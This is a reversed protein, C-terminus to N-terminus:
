SNQTLRHVVEDDVILEVVARDNPCLNELPVTIGDGDIEGNTGTVRLQATSWTNVTDREVDESDPYDQTFESPVM